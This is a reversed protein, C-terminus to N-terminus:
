ARWRVADGLRARDSASVLRARVVPWTARCQLHRLVEQKFRPTSGHEEDVVILGLNRRCSCRRGRRGCWGVRDRRGISRWTERRGPADPRFSWASRRAASAIRSAGSLWQATLAIEPLLVLAQRGLALAAAIAEFILCGDQGAGPLWRLLTASFAHARVKEVLADAASMRNSAVPHALRRTGDASPLSRRMSAARRNESLGASAMTKIVSLGVRCPPCAPPRGDLLAM